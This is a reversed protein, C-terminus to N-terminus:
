WRHKWAGYGLPHSNHLSLSRKHRIWYLSCCPIGECFFPRWFLVWHVVGLNCSIHSYRESCLQSHTKYFRFPISQSSLDSLLDSLSIFEGKGIAELPDRGKSYMIVWYNMQLFAFYFSVDISTLITCKLIIQNTEMASSRSLSAKKIWIM